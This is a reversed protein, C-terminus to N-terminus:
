AGAIAMPGLLLSPAVTAKDFVLDNAPILRAYIDILNGAVTVESVPHIAEGKRYYYGSVGVSYDGTNNNLSPGFMETVLLAEDLDTLIAEPTKEGAAMILNSSSVSPPSSVSRFAHGTTEMGMQKATSSNHLWGTLVGKDIVKMASTAVGEGDFPRSGQGRTRRPDDTVTINEGFVSQGIKDKLFSTGRTVATGAIASTLASLLAGSVRKDFMVPMNGSPLQKSGLRKLTREAALKGIDSASRLENLYRGTAYDYDREMAGDKEAIASVSRGFRSTEYGRAFGDTTAFFLSASTASASAGETQRIGKIALAASETEQASAKLQEPTLLTDDRLELDVDESALREKPALGAYPDEPALKAMAVARDALRLLADESLDSASVCAQRQGIMVRLGIDKGESSDVDELEGQRVSISLSRGHTVLCDARDAGAKQAADLLFEASPSLAGHHPAAEINTKDTMGLM